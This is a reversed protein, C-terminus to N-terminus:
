IPEVTANPSAQGWEYATACTSCLRTVAGDDHVVQNIAQNDCNACYAASGGRDEYEGDDEVEVYFVGSRLADAACDHCFLTGTQDEMDIRFLTVDGARPCMCAGLHASCGPDSCECESMQEDVIPIETEM